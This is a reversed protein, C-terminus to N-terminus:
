DARFVEELEQWPLPEDLLTEMLKSWEQTPPDNELYAMAAEWDNCELYSFLEDGHIFISFNRIGAKSIAEFLESDMNKHLRIYEEASGPKLRGFRGIRQM